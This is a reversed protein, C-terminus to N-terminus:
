TSHFNPLNIDNDSIILEDETIGWDINIKKDSYIIGSESKKNYFNDVKYKILATDSLTLYGHAYERSIFISNVDNHDLICSFYKGYYKSNKNINVVVDLIKGRIVTLLKAQSYPKKQFHLGRLSNKKSYVLNDQCFDINYGLKENLIDRRYIESFYGRSDPYNNNKILYIDKFKTKVFKM